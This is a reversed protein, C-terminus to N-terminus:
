AVESFGISKKFRGHVWCEIARIVNIKGDFPSGNCNTPGTFSTTSLSILDLAARNELAGNGLIHTYRRHIFSRMVLM